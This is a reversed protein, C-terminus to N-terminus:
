QQQQHQRGLCAISTAALIMHNPVLRGHCLDVEVATLNPVARRVRAAPKRSSDAGSSSSALHPLRVELGTSARALLMNRTKDRRGITNVAGGVTTSTVLDTSSRCSSPSSAEARSAPSNRGRPSPFGASSATRRRRTKQPPACTIVFGPGQALRLPREETVSNRGPQQLSTGWVLSSHPQLPKLTM